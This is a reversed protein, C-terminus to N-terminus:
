GKRGGGVLRATLKSVERDNQTIERLLAKAEAPAHQVALRLLGMWLSNNRARIEQIRDIQADDTAKIPPLQSNMRAARDLLPTGPPVYRYPNMTGNATKKASM